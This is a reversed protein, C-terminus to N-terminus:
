PSANLEAHLGHTFLEVGTRCVRLLFLWSLV